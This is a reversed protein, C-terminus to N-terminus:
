KREKRKNKEANVFTLIETKKRDEFRNTTFQQKDERLDYPLM